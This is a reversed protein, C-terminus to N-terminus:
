VLKLHGYKSKYMATYLDLDRDESLLLSDAIKQVESVNEAAGIAAKRRGSLEGSMAKEWNSEEEQRLKQQQEEKHKKRQLAEELRRQRKRDVEEERALEEEEQLRRLEERQM